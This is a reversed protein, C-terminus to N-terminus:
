KGKLIQVFTEYQEAGTLAKRIKADRVMEVIKGLIPLYLNSSDHPPAVILFVLHVKKQDVANFDVGEKSIGAVVHVDSVALTRCHPIAVGKGIGTSGLTERKGLTDLVLRKSKVVGIALLPQVLEEMVKEKDKAVINPIFYSPRFLSALDSSNM